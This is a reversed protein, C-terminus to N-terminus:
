NTSIHRSILQQLSQIKIPKMIYDDCGAEIAKERDGVMAYATQAIVKISPNMKKIIRTAEYGNMIPLKLDMLVLNTEPNMEIFKIADLGNNVHHIRIGLNRLSEKILLANSEVDEVLLLSKVIVKKLQGDTERLKNNVLRNDADSIFPLSFYFNSGQGVISEFWIKGDLLLILKQVISLGIGSGGKNMDHYDFRVFRDFIKPQDEPPIGVGTDSVMFILEQKNKVCSITILGESTFKISNSILNSLIQKLRLPDTKMCLDEDALCFEIRVDTKEKKQLELSYLENLESFVKNIRVNSLEIKLNGSEIKSLDIIDDLLRLLNGGSTQIINIYQDRKLPDTENQLLDSFGIISNM